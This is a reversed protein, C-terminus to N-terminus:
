SEQLIIWESALKRWIEWNQGHNKTLWMLSFDTTRGDNKRRKSTM